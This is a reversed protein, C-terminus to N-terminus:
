KVKDYVSIVVFPEHLVSMGQSNKGLYINVDDSYDHQRYRAVVYINTAKEFQSDTFINDMFFLSSPSTTDGVNNLTGTRVAKLILKTPDTPHQIALGISFSNWGARKSKLNTTVGMEIRVTIISTGTYPEIKFTLSDFISWGIISKAPNNLTIEQNEEYKTAGDQTSHDLEVGDESRKFFTKRLFYTNDNAILSVQNWKAPKDPGDSVVAFGSAGSDGTSAESGGLFLTGNLLTNGNVDLASKPNNINIGVNGVDQSNSNFVNLM